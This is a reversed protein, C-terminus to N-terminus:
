TDLIPAIKKMEETLEAERKQDKTAAITLSL